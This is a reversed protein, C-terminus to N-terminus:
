DEKHYRWLFGGASKSKGRCCSSISQYCIQLENGAQKVYDWTKIFNGNLDYQDVKKARHNNAGTQSESIKQRAEDTHHKGYMPHKDGYCKGKKSDSIKRKTEETHHKNYMPHNEKNEYLEKLTNSIKEKQEESMAKGYNPNNEGSVKCNNKLTESQRKRIDEIEEDSKGLLPNIYGGAATNYGNENILTKYREIFFMEYEDIKELPIDHALIKIDFNDIGYKRIAKHFMMNYNRNDKNRFSDREHQKHRKNFDKTQGIYKKGNTKNIYMYICNYYNEKM